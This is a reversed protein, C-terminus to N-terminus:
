ADDELPDDSNSEGADNNPDSEINVMQFEELITEQHESSHFMKVTVSM